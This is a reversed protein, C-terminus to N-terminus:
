FLTLLCVYLDDPLYSFHPSTVMPSWRAGLQLYGPTLFRYAYNLFDVLAQFLPCCINIQPFVLLLTSLWLGRSQPRQFSHASSMGDGLLALMIGVCLLESWTRIPRYGFPKQRFSKGCCQGVAVVVSTGKFSSSSRSKNTFKMIALSRIVLVALAKLHLFTEREIVYDTDWTIYFMNEHVFFFPSTSVLM